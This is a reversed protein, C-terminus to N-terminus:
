SLRVLKRHQQRRRGYGAYWGGANGGDDVLGGIAATAVGSQSLRGPAAADRWITIDQQMSDSLQLDYDDCPLSASQSGQQVHCLITSSSLAQNTVISIFM